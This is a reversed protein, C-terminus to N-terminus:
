FETPMSNGNPIFMGYQKLLTSDHFLPWHIKERFSDVKEFTVRTELRVNYHRVKDDVKQEM